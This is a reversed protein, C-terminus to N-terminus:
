GQDQLRECHLLLADRDTCEAVSMEPNHHCVAEDMRWRRFIPGLDIQAGDWIVQTTGLVSQATDRIMTELWIWSRMTPPIPRTYSLCRLNPTTGPRCGENRFNRNIEYVRELGGVVLRKLYM